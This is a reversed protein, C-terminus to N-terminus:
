SYSLNFKQKILDQLTAYIVSVTQEFGNKLEAVEKQELNGLVSFGLLYMNLMATKETLLGTTTESKDGEFIKLQAVLNNLAKEITKVHENLRRDSDAHLANSFKANVADSIIKLQPNKGDYINLQGRFEKVAIDINAFLLSALERIKKRDEYGIDIEKQRRYLWLGFLALLGGALLTGLFTNNLLTLMCTM